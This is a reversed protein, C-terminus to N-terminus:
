YGFVIERKRRSGRLERKYYMLSAFHNTVPFNLQETVCISPRPAWFIVRFHSIGHHWFYGAMKSDRCGPLPIAVAIVTIRCRQMAQGQKRLKM